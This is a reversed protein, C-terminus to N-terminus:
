VDAVLFALHPHEPMGMKRKCRGLGVRASRPRDAIHDSRALFAGRPSALEDGQIGRERGVQPGGRDPGPAPASEQKVQDRIATLIPVLRGYIEIQRDSKAPGFRLNYANM